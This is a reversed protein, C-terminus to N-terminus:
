SDFWHKTATEIIEVKCGEEKDASLLADCAALLNDFRKTELLERHYADMRGNAVDARKFFLLGVGEVVVGAVASALGIQLKDGIALSVGIFIIVIGVTSVLFSSWFNVRMQQRADEYDDRIQHSLDLLGQFFRNDLKFAKRLATLLTQPGDQKAIFDVAPPLGELQPGLAERVASYTPFRTLMIKPIEPAVRKALNLGSVDKEDDDNILRVDIVALDVQRRDLINRAEIPDLAPIIVYGENELFERWTQLFDSNNDVFLIIKGTM